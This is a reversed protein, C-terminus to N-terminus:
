YGSEALQRRVEALAPAAEAAFDGWHCEITLLSDYGAARLARLFPRFDDGKVGPATREDREALHAHRIRSGVKVIGGPAEDNRLMHFLDVLLEVSPHAAREAAEFGEEVTNILNCEGRNLPEVVVTLGHRQAVPAMRRLAEVYQEFARAASFGEPVMRAGASGFVICRLGSQQARRFATEVYGDFRRWDVAPGVVKLDAPFLCNAAPMKVAAGALAADLPAFEAEPAEPRLFNQVHGEIFDFPLPRPFPRIAFPDACVGLQM